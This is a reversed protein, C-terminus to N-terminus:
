RPRRRVNPGARLCVAALAALANHLSRLQSAIRNREQELQILLSTLNSM